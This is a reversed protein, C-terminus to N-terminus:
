NHLFPPGAYFVFWIALAIVAVYVNLMVVRELATIGVRQVVPREEEARM